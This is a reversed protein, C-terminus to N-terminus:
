REVCEIERESVKKRSELLESETRVYAHTQIHKMGISERKQKKRERYIYINIYM